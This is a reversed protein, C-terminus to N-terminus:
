QFLAVRLFGIGAAVLIIWTSNLKTFAVLGFSAAALAISVSDTLAERALQLTVVAMLGLSAANVGDLLAGLFKSERLRPIHRYTLAVLLFSPIFIGATALVAGPLGGLFYGIFTATTFLPGPTIQGVAVADIIQQSTMWGLRHVFDSQLFALLVYGSGYLVSGIKLFTFFLAGLNFPQPSIIGSFPWAFPLLVGLRRNKPLSAPIQKVLVIFLGALLMLTINNTGAWSLAFVALAALGTWADKIALKGLSWLAKAIIAIVVPKVAFLVGNIQPLGGFRMYVWALGIVMLMAPLIFSIGGLILGAWGARYYSLYIVMETSNPGPILHSAGMLDLFHQEDLWKRKKVVQDHYLAIHAAPGGFATFGLWLFLLVVEKLNERNPKEM